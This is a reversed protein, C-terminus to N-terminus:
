SRPRVMVNESEALGRRNKAVQKKLVKMIEALEQREAANEQVMEELLEQGELAQLRNEALLLRQKRECRSLPWDWHFGEETTQACCLEENREKWAEAGYSCRPTPAVEPSAFAFSWVEEPVLSATRVIVHREKTRQEEVQLDGAALCRLVARLAANERRLTELEAQEAEQTFAAELQKLTCAAVQRRCSDIRTIKNPTPASGDESEEGFESSATSGQSLETSGKDPLPLQLKPITPHARAKVMPVKVPPRWKPDVERRNSILEAISCPFVNAKLDTAGWKQDKIVWVDSGVPVPRLEIERNKGDEWKCHEGSMRVYKYELKIFGNSGGIWLPGAMIWRPYELESTSMRRELLGPGQPQWSGMGPHSGVVAIVQGMQTDANDIEFVVAISAM